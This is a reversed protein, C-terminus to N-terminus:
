LHRLFGVLEVEGRAAVVNGLNSSKQMTPLVSYQHQVVSVTKAILSRDRQRNYIKGLAADIRKECTTADNAALDFITQEVPCYLKAARAAMLLNDTFEDRRLLILKDGLEVVIM